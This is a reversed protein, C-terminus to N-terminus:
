CQKGGGRYFFHLKSINRQQIGEWDVVLLKEVHLINQPAPGRDNSIVMCPVARLLGLLHICGCLVIFIAYGPAHLAGHDVESDYCHGVKSLLLSKPVHCNLIFPSSSNSQKERNTYRKTSM